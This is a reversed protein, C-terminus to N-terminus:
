WMKFRTLIDLKSVRTKNTTRAEYVNATSYNSVNFGLYWKDSIRGMFEVEHSGNTIRANHVLNVRWDFIVIYNVGAQKYCTYYIFDDDAYLGGATNAFGDDIGPIWLRRDFQTFGLFNLNIDYFAFGRVSRGAANRDNACLFIYVKKNPDYYVSTFYKMNPAYSHLSEMMNVSRTIALTSANVFFIKNNTDDLPVIALEDSEPVYTMGNAHILGSSAPITNTNVIQGTETDYKVLTKDSNDGHFRVWYLYREGDTCGGEAMTGSYGTESDSIVLADVDITEPPLYYMSDPLSNESIVVTDSLEIPTLPETAENKTLSLAFVANKLTAANPVYLGIYNVASTILVSGRPNSLVTNSGRRGTAAVNTSVSEPIIVEGSILSCKLQYYEGITLGLDEAGWASGGEAISDAVEGTKLNMFILGGSCTGNLKILNKDPNTEIDVHHYRTSISALEFESDVNFLYSPLMYDEYNMAGKFAVGGQYMNIIIKVAGEPAITTRGKYTISAPSMLVSNGESDVFSFLRSTTGGRAYFTFADGATCDLVVSQFNDNSTVEYTNGTEPTAISQGINPVIKTLGFSELVGYAGDLAYGTYASDAAAGMITLTKDVPPTTPTINSDLWAQIITPAIEDVLNDFYGESTMEDIKNNIEEQVDLNDFYTEVFTKLNQAIEMASNATTVAEKMARLLWDINLDNLDTYPFNNFAM